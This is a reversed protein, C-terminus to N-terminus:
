AVDNKSFQKRLVFVFVLTSANNPATNQIQDAEFKYTIHFLPAPNETYHSPLIGGGYGQSAYSVVFLSGLAQPYLRAM